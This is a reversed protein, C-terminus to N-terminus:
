ATESHSQGSSMSERLARNVTGSSVTFPVSSNSGIPVLLLSDHLTDCLESEEPKASAAAQNLSPHVAVPAQPPTPSMLEVATLKQLREEFKALGQSAIYHARAPDFDADASEPAGGGGDNNVDTHVLDTRASPAAQNDRPINGTDPHSCSRAGDPAPLRREVTERKAEPPSAVDKEKQSDEDNVETVTGASLVDISRIGAAPAPSASTSTRSHGCGM